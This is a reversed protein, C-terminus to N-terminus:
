GGGGEGRRERFAQIVSRVRDLNDSYPRSGRKWRYITSFDICAERAVQAVPVGLRECQWEVWAGPNEPPTDRTSDTVEPRGPQRHHTKAKLPTIKRRSRVPSTAHM